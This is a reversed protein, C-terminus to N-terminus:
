NRHHIRRCRLSGHMVIMVECPPPSRFHKSPHRSNKQGNEDQLDQRCSADVERSRNLKLSLGAKQSGERAHSHRGSSSVAHAGSIARCRSHLSDFCVVVDVAKTKLNNRNCPLKPRRLDLTTSTRSSSSFSRRQVEVYACSQHGELQPGIPYIYLIFFCAGGEM